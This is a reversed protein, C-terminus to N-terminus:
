AGVDRALRNLYSALRARDAASWSTTLELFKARRWRHSEGLLARGAATLSLSNRRADSSRRQELYGQDTAAAVM